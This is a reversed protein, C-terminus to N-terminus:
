TIVPVNWEGMKRREWYAALVLAPGGYRGM